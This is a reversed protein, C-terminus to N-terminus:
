RREPADDRFLDSISENGHIRRIADALLPGVSIVKIPLKEAKEKSLPISDTIAIQELGAERLRSVAKDVLLGHTACAFARKAGHKRAIEVANVMSSATSIMDDFLVVTKGEVPAGILHAAKTETASTRRKDV